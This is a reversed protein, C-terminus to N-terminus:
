GCFAMNGRFLVSKPTLRPVTDLMTITRYSHYPAWMTERCTPCHRLFPQLTQTATPVPQPTIRAM